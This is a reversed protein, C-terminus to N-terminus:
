YGSGRGGRVRMGGVVAKESLAELFGKYDDRKVEVVCHEFHDLRVRAGTADAVESFAIGFRNKGHARRAAKRTDDNDSDDSDSDSSGESETADEEEEDEDDDSDMGNALRRLRRAEKEKAREARRKSRKEERAKKAEERRRARDPDFRAGGGGGLGVIVYVDRTEDLAALVLEGNGDRAKKGEQEVLAEAIWLALKILAGPHAFLPVDPGEKVVAVRFANLHLVQRKELLSTGTRLIARHLSQATPIHQTLLKIDALADYATFFRATVHEQHALDSEETTPPPQSPAPDSPDNSSATAVTRTSADGVELIAGIITGVDLASLCAKWGWCRVFGWGEKPIRSEEPPVLGELGYVPAQELLKKRLSRKVQMDMHQYNQKCQALSIGMKALFKHLRRRGNDNWIRLRTSLFPSHLMSDYLSWHRILLFKPEPSLRISTDTPSRGTTPIVGYAEGVTTEQIFEKSDLPNLRNVEDRLAHRIREGRDGNWGSWRGSSSVPNLGIGNQTRGYLELSSAGVVANWLLDNDERGLKEALSYMMSSVPESYSTGLAYYQELVSEHRRRMRLLRKRLTRASPQRPGHIAPSSSRSISPERSINSSNDTQGAMSILGHRRPREGTSDISASSNSRRRRRPRDDQDDEESDEERDSSTKRKQGSPPLGTTDVPERGGEDEDGDESSESDSDNFEDEDVEPMEALACYADQERKLEEDIDGDDYVFIGGNGPIYRDSVRGNVVGRERSVLQGDQAAVQAQGGFINTLNYPRRSDFVWLEVGAMGGEGKEDVELRLVNELDVLGGVGLCVVVGGSGGETTRMPRVLETGVRALDGYGAIPKIKHSIYDRKLLSILIRCACLADPELAVLILVPSSLSNNTKKLHLYLTSISDRPLYM